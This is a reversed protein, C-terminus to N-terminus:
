QNTTPSYPIAGQWVQLHADYIAVRAAMFRAMWLLDSTTHKSLKPQEKKM